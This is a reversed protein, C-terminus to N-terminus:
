IYKIITYLKSTCNIGNDNVFLEAFDEFSGKM